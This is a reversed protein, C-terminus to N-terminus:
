QRKWVIKVDMQLMYPLDLEVGVGELVDDEYRVFYMYCTNPDIGEDDEDQGACNVSESTGSTVTLINTVSVRDESTTSRTVTSTGTAAAAPIHSIRLGKKASVRTSLM